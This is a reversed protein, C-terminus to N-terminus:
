SDTWAEAITALPRGVIDSLRGSDTSAILPFLRRVAEPDDELQQVVNDIKDTVPM